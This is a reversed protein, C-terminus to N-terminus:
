KRGKGNNFDIMMQLKNFESTQHKLKPKQDRLYNQLGENQIVRVQHEPFKSKIAFYTETLDAKDYFDFDDKGDIITFHAWEGDVKMVYVQRFRSKMSDREQEKASYDPFDIRLQKPYM